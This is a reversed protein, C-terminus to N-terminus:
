NISIFILIISAVSSVVGLINFEGILVDSFSRPVIIIDGREVDTDLGKIKQGNRIIISKAINGQNTNGGALGIYDIVKYDGIFHYSGPRNVKGQVYVELKKSLEIIDNPKLVIDKREIKSDNGMVDITYYQIGDNNKRTINVSYTKIDSGFNNYEHLFESLKEGEILPYIGKNKTAGSVTITETFPDAKPVFILDGQRIFPNSLLDGKNVYNYGNIITETGNSHIIHIEYFKGLNEIGGASRIIDIVRDIPKVAKLGPNKLAGTLHIKFERMKKLQVDIQTNLIHKELLSIIAKKGDFLSMGAIKTDGIHPIEVYGEPSISVVLYQSEASIINISLMDGAGLIYLKPDITEELIDFETGKIILQDSQTERLQNVSTKNEEFGIRRVQSFLIQTSLIFVVIIGIIKLSKKM